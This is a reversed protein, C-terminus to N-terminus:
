NLGALFTTESKAIDLDEATPRNNIRRAQRERLKQELAGVANDEAPACTIQNDKLFKAAAQIDAASAPIVEGTPEGAEDLLPTGKLKEILAQATLEHLVGLTTENAAM